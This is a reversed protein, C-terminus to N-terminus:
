KVFRTRAVVEWRGIINNKEVVSAKDHLAVTPCIHAPIGYIIAGPKLSSTDPVRVVLHEESQSVIVAEDLNLFAVRPQPMESAIAKHGLDLCIHQKDLISIVRTVVLAAYDFPLEPYHTKYNRDWFVFTGPSLQIDKDDLYCAFSPSGGIVLQLPRGLQQATEKRFNRLEETCRVSQKCREDKSSDHIHGDYGHFGLLTLHASAEIASTLDAINGISCGTRNMGVNVDIFVNGQMSEAAFSKALQPIVSVNDVLFSLTVKPFSRQLYIFADINAGVLPYALLVDAAGAKCLMQLEALTACKFKSIGRQMMATCVEAMKNTKVHPRYRAADGCMGILNDINREMRDKYIVLSPTLLQATDKIEFWQM